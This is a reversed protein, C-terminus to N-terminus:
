YFVGEMEPLRKLFWCGILGQMVPKFKYGYLIMGKREIDEKIKRTVMEVKMGISVPQEGLDTL